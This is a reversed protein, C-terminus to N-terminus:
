IVKRRNNKKKKKKKRGRERELKRDRWQHSLKFHITAIEIEKFPIFVVKIV